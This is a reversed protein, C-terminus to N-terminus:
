VVGIQSSVYLVARILWFLVFALGVWFVFQASITAWRPFQRQLQFPMQSASGMSSRVLELKPETAYSLVQLHFFEKPGLTEFRTHARSIESSVPNRGTSSPSAISPVACVNVRTDSM